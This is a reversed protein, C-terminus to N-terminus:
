SKKCSIREHLNTVGSVLMRLLGPIEAEGWTMVAGTPTIAAFTKETVM